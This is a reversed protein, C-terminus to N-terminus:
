GPWFLRRRGNRHSQVGREDAATLVALPMQLHPDAVDFRLGTPPYTKPATALVSVSTLTRIQWLRSATPRVSSVTSLVKM